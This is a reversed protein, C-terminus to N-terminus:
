RITYRLPVVAGLAAERAKKVMCNFCAAPHWFTKSRKEWFFAAWFGFIANPLASFNVSSGGFVASIDLKQAFQKKQAKYTAFTGRFACSFFAHIWQLQPLFISYYALRIHSSALSQRRIAPLKRPTHGNM